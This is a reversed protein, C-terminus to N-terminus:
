PTTVHTKKLYRYIKHMASMTANSHAMHVSVLVLIIVLILLAFALIFKSMSDWVPMAIVDRVRQQHTDAETTSLSTRAQGEQMQMIQYQLRRIDEVHKRRQAELSVLQQHHQQQQSEAVFSPAPPPMATTSTHVDRMAQSSPPASSAYAPATQAVHRPFAEHVPTGYQQPWM